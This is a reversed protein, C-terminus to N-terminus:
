GRLESYSVSYSYKPIEYNIILNVADFYYKTIIINM